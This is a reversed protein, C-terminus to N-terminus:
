KPISKQWNCLYSEFLDGNYKEEFIEKNYDYKSNKLANKIDEIYLFHLLKGGLKRKKLKGSLNLLEVARKPGNGIIYVQFIRINYKYAIGVSIDYATLPGIGKINKTEKIIDRLICEFYFYNKYKEIQISPLFDNLTSKWRCHAKAEYFIDM